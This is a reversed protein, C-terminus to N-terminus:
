SHIYTYSADAGVKQAGKYYQVQITYNGPVSFVTELDIYYYNQAADYQVTSFPIKKLNEIPTSGRYVSYRLETLETLSVSNAFTLQVYSPNTPSRRPTVTGVSIGSSDLTYAKIDAVMYQLDTPNAVQSIDPLRGRNGLDTVAFCRITYQEGMELDSVEITYPAATALKDAVHASPTRDNGERDFIRVYYKDSVITRDWDGPAVRVHLKHVNEPTTEATASLGMMPENLARLSFSRTGQGLLRSDTTAPDIYYDRRQEFTPRPGSYATIYVTYDTDFEFWDGGVTEPGIAFPLRMTPSMLSSGVMNAAMMQEHTLVSGDERVFDYALSFGMTTDLTFSAYLRKIDYSSPEYTIAINRILVEGLTRFQYEAKKTTLIAPDYFTIIGDNGVIKGCIRFYYITAPSLGSPLSFTYIGDQKIGEVMRIPITLTLDPDLLPTKNETLFEIYFHDDDMVDLGTIRFQGSINNLGVTVDNVTDITVEPIAAPKNLLNSGELNAYMGKLAKLTIPRYAGAIQAYAGDERYSMTFSGGETPQLAMKNGGFSLTGTAANHTVGTFWSGNANANDTYGSGINRIVRYNGAAPSAGSVPFQIAYDTIGLVSDPEFGSIGTDYYVRANFILPEGQEFNALLTYPVEVCTRTNGAINARTVGLNLVELKTEDENTVTIQAGAMRRYIVDDIVGMQSRDTGLVVFLRNLADNPNMVNYYFTSVEETQHVRSLLTRKASQSAYAPYLNQVVSLEYSPILSTLGTFQVSNFATTTPTISASSILTDNLRRCNIVRNAGLLVSDYDTYQYRWTVSALVSTGPYLRFDPTQKPANARPSYLLFAPNAPESPYDANHSATADQTNLRATYSFFYQAGRGFGGPAHQESGTFHYYRTRDTGSFGAQANGSQGFLVVLSPLTDQSPEVPVAIGDPVLKEVAPNNATANDFLQTDVFADLKHMQYTVLRAYRGTNDFRPNVEYGLITDNKIAAIKAPDILWDELSVKYNGINAKTIPTVVMSNNRESEPPDVPPTSTKVFAFTKNQLVFINSDHNTYDRALEVEVLYTSSKLSAANLGFDTETLTQVGDYFDSKLVSAYNEGGSGIVPLSSILKSPSLTSGEYLNFRLYGLTSAEYSADVGGAGELRVDVSIAKTPDATDSPTKIMNVLFASAEITQVKVPGIMVEDVPNSDNMNVRATVWISYTEKQRLGGEDFGIVVRNGAIEQAAVVKSYVNGVSDQWYVTVNRSTDVTAGTSEIYLTGTIREFQIDTPEFRLTPFDAGEMIFPASMNSDVEVTKLNDEFEAVALVTYQTNRQLLGNVSFDVRQSGVGNATAVPSTGGLTYVEYRIKKVGNDPDSLASIQMEFTGNRKNVTVNPQGVVPTRKLTMCDLPTGYKAVNVPDGSAYSGGVQTLQATYATNPLLGTNFSVIDSASAFSVPKQDILSGQADYLEITASTVPSYTEKKVRFSLENTRAAYLDMTLGLADSMVVRDYFIKSYQEDNVMYDAEFVLRYETNEALGTAQFNFIFGDFAEPGYAIQGTANNIVKMIVSGPVLRSEDDVIRVSGSITSATLNAQDTEVEFVPLIVRTEPEGPESVGPDVTDGVAGAEGGSGALGGDGSNGDQGDQGDVAVFRPIKVSGKDADALPTVDINDHSDVVMQALSLKVQDELLVNRANLDIMVGDDFELICNSAITSLMMENNYIMVISNDVYEVEIYDTFDRPEENPLRLRLGAGAILYKDPRLKWIYKRYTIPTGMHDLSYYSGDKAIVTGPQLGYCRIMSEDEIDGLDLVVGSALAAVSGDAYHLFSNEDVSVQNRQVDSFTVANSYKQAFAEGARFYHPVAKSIIGEDSEVRAEKLVYGDQLFTQQSGQINQVTFYGVVAVFGVVFAAVFYIWLYKRNPM